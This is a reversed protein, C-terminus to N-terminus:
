PMTQDYKQGLKPLSGGGCMKKKREISKKLKQVTNYQAGSAYVRRTLFEWIIDVLNLKPSPSPWDMFIVNKCDIYAKTKMSAHLAAGNQKFSWSRLEGCLEKKFPFM